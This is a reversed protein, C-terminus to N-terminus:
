GCPNIPNDEDDWYQERSGCAECIRTERGYTWTHPNFGFEEANKEHQSGVVTELEIGEHVTGAEADFFAGVRKQAHEPSTARVLLSHQRGVADGVLRYEGTVRYLHTETM